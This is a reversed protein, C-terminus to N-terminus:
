NYMASVVILWDLYALFPSIIWASASTESSKGAASGFRQLVGPQMEETLLPYSSDNFSIRPRTVYNILLRRVVSSILAGEQM